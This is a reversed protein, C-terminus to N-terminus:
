VGIWQRLASLPRRFLYFALPADDGFLQATGRTGLRPNKMNSDSFRAVVHYALETGPTLYSQYDAYEIIAERARLPESDLFVKVRAGPRLVLADQVNVNIAIEVHAPDAIKMIREGLVVPKGDLEQKDSYIAIGNRPASITAREFRERAYDREAIKLKHEAMFLGIEHRGEKAGFALQSQKKLQAEAVMVQREAVELHNRLDTDVFEVLPDGAKVAENPAVLVDKIVGELPAAVIFPDQPVIEMPALVTMPVPLAMAAAIAIIAGFGVKRRDIMKSIRRKPVESKVLLLALAHAFIKAMRTAISIDSDNWPRESVLLLGGLPDGEHVRLPIWVVHKYPYRFLFDNEDIGCDSLEFEHTEQFGAVEGLASVIQEISRIIPASRDVSPLGSVTVIRMERMPRFVFVQRARTLKRTENAFLFQLAEPTHAQRSSEEIDLLMQLGAASSASSPQDRLLVLSEDSQQSVHETASLTSTRASAM